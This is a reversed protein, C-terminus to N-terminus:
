PSELGNRSIGGMDESKKLSSIDAGLITLAARGSVLEIDDFSAWTNPNGDSVLRVTCEGNTVQNSVVLQLWRYGPSTPPM